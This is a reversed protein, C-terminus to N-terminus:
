GEPKATKAAELAEEVSAKQSLFKDLRVLKLTQTVRANGVLQLTGSQGQVLKAIQVLAGVGSSDVFDIHSLDLIINAPGEELYKAVVKRFIPESFADLQGTLHFVRCPEILEQSGRLSVTLSLPEQM